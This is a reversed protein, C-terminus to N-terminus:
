VIKISVSGKGNTGAIHIIQIKLHPNEYAKLIIIMNYLALKVPLKM